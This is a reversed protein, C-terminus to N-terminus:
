VPGFDYGRGENAESHLGVSFIAANVTESELRAGNRLM